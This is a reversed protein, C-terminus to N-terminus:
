KSRFWQETEKYNIKLLNREVRQLTRVNELM